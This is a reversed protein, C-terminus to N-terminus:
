KKYGILSKLTEVIYDRKEKSGVSTLLKSITLIQREINLFPELKPDSVIRAEQIDEFFYAVNIELADSIECLRGASIRNIGNEYKQVQQHSIKLREALEMQSIGLSLRRLRVKLGIKCDIETVRRVM